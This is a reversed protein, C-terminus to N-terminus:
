GATTDGKKEKGNNLFPHNTIREVARRDLDANEESEDDKTQGVKRIIIEGTEWVERVEGCTACVALIGEKDIRSSPSGDVFRELRKVEFFKHGSLIQECINVQAM